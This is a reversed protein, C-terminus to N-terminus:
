SVKRTPITASVIYMSNETMILYEDDIKFIKSINSTYEEENKVLLKENTAEKVGIFVTKDFSEKWYDLMIPKDEMIAYKSANVLTKSSPPKIEKITNTHSENSSM